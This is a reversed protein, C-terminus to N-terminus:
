LKNSGVLVHWIMDIIFGIHFGLVGIGFVFYGVKPLYKNSKYAVMFIQIPVLLFYIQGYYFCSLIFNYLKGLRGWYTSEVIFIHITSLPATLCFSIFLSSINYKRFSFRKQLGLGIIVLFTTFGVLTPQFCTYLDKSTMHLSRYVLWPGGTILIVVALVRMIQWSSIEDILDDAFEFM